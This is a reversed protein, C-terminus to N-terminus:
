TSQGSTQNNTMKNAGENLNERLILRADNNAIREIEPQDSRKCIRRLCAANEKATRQMMIKFQRKNLAQKCSPLTGRSVPSGPKFPQCM